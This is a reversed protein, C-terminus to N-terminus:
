PVHVVGIGYNPETSAIREETEFREKLEAWLRPV